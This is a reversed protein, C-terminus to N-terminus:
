AAKTRDHTAVACPGDKPPRRLWVDRCRWGSRQGRTRFAKSTFFRWSMAYWPNRAFVFQLCDVGAERALEVARAVDAPRDNWRFVVYKWVIQPRRLGRVDRYDVVRKMNAYARDFDGGRQYRRVMPTSVGDISFLLDDVLLAAERKADSDILLGNTSLLIKMAPNSRRLLRLEDLIASSFFPEGLNYYGCYTAGLRQLTGAVIEVDALSLSQGGGRTELIKERCCSLCRLNCRVTNEISLGKPLQFQDARRRAEDLPALQLHWCAACRVLPLRGAALTRRFATARPGALIAELSTTRLPGLQGRGDIDQCNCSVTMDANVFLGDPAEGALSRCVFGRRSLRARWQWLWRAVGLLRQRSRYNAPQATKM